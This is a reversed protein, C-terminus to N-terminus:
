RAKENRRYESATTRGRSRPRRRLARPLSLALAVTVTWSTAALYGAAVDSPYHVGLYLRSFGLLLVFLVGTAAVTWRHGGTLLRATLFTLVGYFSVATIAHGSPFSYFSATYGSDFLEPREREFLSKLAVGLVAAGPVSVLLLVASLKLDRRYFVYAALLLLPTVLWPYGFATVLRLPPGLWAPSTEHVWVLVAVDLRRTEGEFVEDALGAFIWLAGLSVSLGVLLEAAVALPLHCRLKRLVQARNM